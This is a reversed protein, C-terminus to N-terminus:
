RLYMSFWHTQVKQFSVSPHRPAFVLDSHYSLSILSLLFMYQIYFFSMARTIHHEHPYCWLEKNIQFLLGLTTNAENQLRIYHLKNWACHLLEHCCTKQVLLWHIIKFILCFCFCSQGWLRWKWGYRNRASVTAVINKQSTRKPSTKLNAAPETDM